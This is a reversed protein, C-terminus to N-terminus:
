YLIKIKVGNLADVSYFDLVYVGAVLAMGTILDNPLPVNASTMLLISFPESSVTTTKQTTVGAAINVTGSYKAVVTGSSAATILGKGNVTISANNFTGVNANVTALTLTGSGTADGGHNANSEKITNLAEAAYLEDFNDNIKDGGVKLSDGTGDNDLTGLSITQQGM